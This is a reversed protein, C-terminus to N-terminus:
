PLQAQEVITFQEHENTTHDKISIQHKHKASQGANGSGHPALVGPPLQLM